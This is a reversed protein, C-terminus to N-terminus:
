KRYFKLFVIGMENVFSLFHLAGLVTGPSMAHTGATNVATLSITTPSSLVNSKTNLCHFPPSLLRMRLM